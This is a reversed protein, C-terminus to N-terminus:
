LFLCYSRWYSKRPPRSSGQVSSFAWYTGNPLVVSQLATISGTADYYCYASQCNPASKASGWFDTNYNVTAYCFTYPVTTNNPGPYLFQQASVLPQNSYGLTPCSTTGTSTGTNPISRGLTDTITSATFTIENGNQDENATSNYQVGAWDIILGSSVYYRIGTADVSQYYGNGTDALQHVYGDGTIAFYETVNANCPQVFVGGTGYCGTPFEVVGANVTQHIVTMAQDASQYVGSLGPSLQATARAVYQLHCTSGKTPPCTGVTNLNFGKDNYTLSSGMVLETGRQPLSYLPIKVFLNGNLLSVSDIDGGHYSGYPKIGQELNPSVQAQSAPAAVFIVAFVLSLSYYFRNTLLAGGFVADVIGTPLPAPALV